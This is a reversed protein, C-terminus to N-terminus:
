VNFGLRVWKFGKFDYKFREYGIDGEFDLCLKADVADMTKLFDVIFFDGDKKVQLLKGYKRFEKFVDQNSKLKGSVKLRRSVKDFLLDQIFPDGKVEKAIRHALTVIAFL